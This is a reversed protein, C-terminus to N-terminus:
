HGVEVLQEMAGVTQCDRWFADSEPSHVNLVHAQLHTESEFKLLLSM